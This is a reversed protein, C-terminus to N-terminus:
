GSTCSHKSKLLLLAMDYLPAITLGRFYCRPPPSPSLMALLVAPYTNLVFYRVRAECRVRHEHVRDQTCLDMQQRTVKRPAACAQSWDLRNM